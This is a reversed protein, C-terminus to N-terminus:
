DDGRRNEDKLEMPRKANLIWVCERAMRQRKAEELSLWRFGSFEASPKTSRNRATVKFGLAPIWNRRKRSGANHRGELITEHMEGDIGTAKQFFAKIEALPSRGSHVLVCPLEIRQIGSSDTRVLFLIRGNDELVACALAKPLPTATPIKRRGM